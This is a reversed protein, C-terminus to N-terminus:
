YRIQQLVNRHRGPHAGGFFVATVTVSQYQVGSTFGTGAIKSGATRRRCPASCSTGPITGAVPCSCRVKRRRLGWGALPLSATGVELELQAFGGKRSSGPAGAPWRRSGPRGAGAMGSTVANGRAGALVFRKQPKRFVRSGEDQYVANKSPSADMATIATIWCFPPTPLDVIVALTAPSSTLFPRAM